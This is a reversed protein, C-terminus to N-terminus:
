SVCSFGRPLTSALSPDRGDCIRCVGRPSAFDILQAGALDTWFTGVMQQVWPRRFPLFLFTLNRAMARSNHGTLRPQDEGHCVAAAETANNKSGLGCIRLTHGIYPQRLSPAAGSAQTQLKKDDRAFACCDGSMPQSLSLIM